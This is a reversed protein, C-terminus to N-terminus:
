SFICTSALWEVLWHQLLSNIVNESAFAVEINWAECGIWALEMYRGLFSSFCSCLSGYRIRRDMRRNKRKTDRDNDNIPRIATHHTIMWELGYRAMRHQSEYKSMGDHHISAGFLVTKRQRSLIWTREREIM